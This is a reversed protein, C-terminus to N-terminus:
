QSNESAQIVGLSPSPTPSPEAVPPEVFTGRLRETAPNKLSGDRDLIDYPTLNTSLVNLQHEGVQAVPQESFVYEQGDIAHTVAEGGRFNTGYYWDDRRIANSASLWQRANARRAWVKAWEDLERQQSAIWEYYRKRRDERQQLREYFEVNEDRQLNTIEQAKKEYETKLDTRNQVAQEQSNVDYNVEPLEDKKEPLVVESVYKSYLQLQEFYFDWEAFARTADPQGQQQQAQQPAGPFHRMLAQIEKERIKEAEQPTVKLRVPGYEEHDLYLFEYLEQPATPSTAAGQTTVTEEQIAAGLSPLPPPTPVAQGMAPALSPVAGQGPLGPLGTAPGALGEAPLPALGGPGPAPTPALAPMTAPAAPAPAAAPASPADEASWVSLPALSLVLAVVRKWEMRVRTKKM